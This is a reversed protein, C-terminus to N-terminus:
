TDQVLLSFCNLVICPKFLKVFMRSFISTIQRSSMNGFIIYRHLGNRSNM